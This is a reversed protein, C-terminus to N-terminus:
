QRAQAGHGINWDGGVPRGIAGAVNELEAAIAGGADNYGAQM